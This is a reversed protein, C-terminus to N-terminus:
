LQKHITICFLRAITVTVFTYYCLHSRSLPWLERKLYQCLVFVVPNAATTQCCLQGTTGSTIMVSRTAKAKLCMLLRSHKSRTSTCTFELKMRKFKQGKKTKKKKKFLWHLSQTRAPGDLFQPEIAPLLLPYKNEEFCRSRGQTGCLRLSNAGSVRIWPIFHGFRSTRGRCM